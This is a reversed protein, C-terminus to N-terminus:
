GRDRSPRGGVDERDPPRRMGLKAVAHDLYPTPTLEAISDLLALEREIHTSAEEMVHLTAGIRRWSLATTEAVATAAQEDALLKAGEGFVLALGLPFRTTRDEIDSGTGDMGM